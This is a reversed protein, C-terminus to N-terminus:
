KEINQEYYKKKRERIEDINNKPYLKRQETINIMNNKYYHNHTNKKCTKCQSAHGDHRSKNKHFYDISKIENCTNCLKSKVEEKSEGEM